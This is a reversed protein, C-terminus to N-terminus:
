SLYTVELSASPTTEIFQITNLDGEFQRSDGPHLLNGVTASPEGSTSWRIPANKPKIVAITAGDPPTLAKVIDLGTVIENGMLVTVLTSM